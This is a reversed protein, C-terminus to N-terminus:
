SVARRAQPGAPRAGAFRADFDEMYKGLFIQAVLRRTGKPHVATCDVIKFKRDTSGLAHQSLYGKAGDIIKYHVEDDPRKAALGMTKIAVRESFREALGLFETTGAYNFCCRLKLDQKAELIKGVAECFVPDAYISKASENDGDDYLGDGYFVIDKKAQGLLDLIGKKAAEDDNTGLVTNIKVSLTYLIEGSLLLMRTLCYFAFLIIAIVAASAVYTM